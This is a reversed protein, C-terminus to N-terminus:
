LHQGHSTHYEGGQGLRMRISLVAAEMSIRMLVRNSHGKLLLVGNQILSISHQRIETPLRRSAIYRGPRAVM